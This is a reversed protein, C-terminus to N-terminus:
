QVQVTSPILTTSSSTTIGNRSLLLRMHATDGFSLVIREVIWYGSYQYQFTNNPDSPAELQVIDGPRISFNAFGLLWIKTLNYIRTEYLSYVTGSFDNTFGDGRGTDLFMQDTVPDNQDVLYYPALSPIKNLPLVTTVWNGTNYNFYIWSQQQTGLIQLYKYNDIIDYTQVPYIDQYQDDGWAFKYNVSDNLLEDYSMFNMTLQTNDEMSFWCRFNSHGDTTKLHECLYQLFQADTWLPQILSKSYDLSSSFNTATVGLESAINDLTDSINQNFSRSYLKNFLGSLTLNSTSMLGVVDYEGSLIGESVPTRRYIDFNYTQTTINGANQGNGLQLTINSMNRDFPILHTLIGSSDDLRMRLSPLFENLDQIITLERITSQNVVITQSGFQLQLFYNGSLGLM